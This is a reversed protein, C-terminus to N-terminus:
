FPGSKLERLDMDYPRFGSGGKGPQVAASPGPITQRQRLPAPLQDPPGVDDGLVPQGKEKQQNGGAKKLIRERNLDAAIRQQGALADELPEDPGAELGINELRRGAEECAEEPNGIRHRPEPISAIGGLQQRRDGRQGHEEILRARQDQRAGDDSKGSRHDEGHRKIEQVM